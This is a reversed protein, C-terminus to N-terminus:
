ARCRRTRSRTGDLPVVPTGRANTVIVGDLDDSAAIHATVEDRWQKCEATLDSTGSELIADTWYCGIRGAVDIRWNM